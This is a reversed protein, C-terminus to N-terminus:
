RGHLCFRALHVMVLYLWFERGLILVFTECVSLAPGEGLCTQSLPKVHFGVERGLRSGKRPTPRQSARRNQPNGYLEPLLRSELVGRSCALLLPKVHFHTRTLTLLLLCHHDTFPLSGSVECCFTFFVQFYLTLCGRCRTNLPQHSSILRLTHAAM